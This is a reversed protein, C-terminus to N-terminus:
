CRAPTQARPRPPQDRAAQLLKYVSSRGGKAHTTRGGVSPKTRAKSKLWLNNWHLLEPLRTRMQELSLAPTLEALTQQTDGMVSWAILERKVDGFLKCTSVQESALGGDQAVYGRIIQIINYLMLCFASQFIAARPTTGILHRLDFVETVQQFMKEIGWRHLYCELLDTAPYLQPNLLDTILIVDEDQVEPRYLTIRRVYLRKTSDQGGVWGWEQLYRRGRSDEGESATRQPDARFSLTRNYRILFHGRNQMFLRPMKLDSYQRDSVWLIARERRVQQLLGETLRVENREAEECANMAIALGSRMDQAVQLKGGLLKGCVARTPKLRHQVHKITKGDCALLDFEALSAPAIWHDIPMLGMLQGAGECLFAQSLELPVRALKGYAAAVSVAMRGGQRAREFTRRAGDEKTLLADRILGVLTAFGLKRFYGPGRHKQFLDELFSDDMVFSWCMLVVQALPLRELLGVTLSKMRDEM